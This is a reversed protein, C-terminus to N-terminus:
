SPDARSVKLQQMGQSYYAPHYTTQEDAYSGAEREKGFGAYPNMHAMPPSDEAAPHPRERARPRAACRM